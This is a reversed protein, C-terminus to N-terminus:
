GRVEEGRGVVLQLSANTVQQFYVYFVLLGPSMFFWCGLPYLFNNM